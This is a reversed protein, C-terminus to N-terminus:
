IQPAGCATKGYPHPQPTEGPYSLKELIMRTRSIGKEKSKLLLPIAQMLADWRDDTEGEARDVRDLFAVVNMLEARAELFDRNLVDKKSNM